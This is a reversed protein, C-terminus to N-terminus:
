HSHGTESGPYGACSVKRNYDAFLGDPNQQWAWVHLSYFAPIGYRNPAATYTFLQGGLVPPAPNAANWAEALVVYEVAILRPRGDQWEYMLVEPHAIDLTPDGVLGGNAYHVGMAGGPGTVCGHLVGYGAAEAAELSRFPATANRVALAFPAGLDGTAAASDAGRAPPSGVAVLLGLIVVFRFSHKM